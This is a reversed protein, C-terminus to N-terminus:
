QPICVKVSPQTTDFVECSFQYSPCSYTTGNMSCLFGCMDVGGATFGCFAYTGSPAGSCTSGVSSCSKTCIGKTAGTAFTVCQLGSGCPISGDCIDGFGQTPGPGADAPPTYSCDCHATSYSDICTGSSYGSQQCQSDCSETQWSCGDCTKLSGGDCKVSSGSCSCADYGLQPAIKRYLPSRAARAKCCIQNKCDNSTDCRKACATSCIGECCLEGSGTDCDGSTSCAKPCPVRAPDLCIGNSGLTKDLLGMTTCCIESNHTDCESSTSCTTPCRNAPLCVPESYITCCTEGLAVDCASDSSCLKVAKKPDQCVKNTSSLTARICAEGSNTDCLTDDSCFRPCQAAPTCIKGDDAFGCCLEGKATDCDTDGTCEKPCTDSCVGQSSVGGDGTEKTKEGNNTCASSWLCVAALLCGCVIKRDM